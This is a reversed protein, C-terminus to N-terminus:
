KGSPEMVWPKLALASGILLSQVYNADYPIFFLLQSLLLVLMIQARLGREGDQRAAAFLPLLCACYMIVFGFLGLLGTRLFISIYFNHPSVSVEGGRV